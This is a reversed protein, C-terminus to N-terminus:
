DKVWADFAFEPTKALPDNDLQKKLRDYWEQKAENDAPREGLMASYQQYKTHLTTLEQKLQGHKDKNSRRNYLKRWAAIKSDM